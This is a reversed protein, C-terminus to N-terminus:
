FSNKIFSKKFGIIMNIASYMIYLYNIRHNKLIYIFGQEHGAM